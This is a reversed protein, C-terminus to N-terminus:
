IDLVMNLFGAINNEDREMFELVTKPDGEDEVAYFPAKLDFLEIIGRLYKATSYQYSYESETLSGNRWITLM